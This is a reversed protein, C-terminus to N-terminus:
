NILEGKMWKIYGPRVNGITISGIFPLKDSHKQKILKELKKFYKPMTELVLLCGKATEIKGSKPPWFYRTMRRSFIDFCSVLRRRLAEGGIVEAEKIKPCNVLVWIIKM